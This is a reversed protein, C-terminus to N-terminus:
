AVGERPACKNGGGEGSGEGKGSFGSDGDTEFEVGNSVVERFVGHAGEVGDSFHAILANLEIRGVIRPGGVVRM